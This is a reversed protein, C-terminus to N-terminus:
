AFKFGIPFAYSERDARGYLRGNFLAGGASISHTRGSDVNITTTVYSSSGIQTWSPNDLANGNLLVNGIFIFLCKKM